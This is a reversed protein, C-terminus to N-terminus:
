TKIHALRTSDFELFLLLVPHQRQPPSLVNTMINICKTLVYAIFIFSFSSLFSIVRSEQTEAKLSSQPNFLLFNSM